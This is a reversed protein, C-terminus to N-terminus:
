SGRESRHRRILEPIQEPSWPEGSAELAEATWWAWREISLHEDATWDSSTPDFRAPVRVVFYTGLAVEHDVSPDDVAVGIEDVPAGVADVLLGTEERLERIAAEAASEGPEIGGGPTCWRAPSTSGPSTRELLLLASGDPALVLLRSSRRVRPTM